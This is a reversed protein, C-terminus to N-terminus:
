LYKNITIHNIEQQTESKKLNECALTLTADSPDPIHNLELWYPGWIDKYKQSCFLKLEEPAKKLEELISRQCTNDMLIGSGKWNEVMDGTIDMRGFIPGVSDYINSNCLLKLKKVEDPTAQVFDLISQSIEIVPCARPPWKMNISDHCNKSKPCVPKGNVKIIANHTGRQSFCTAGDKCTADIYASGTQAEMYCTSGPECTANIHANGTGATMYCLSGPKCTADIHANLTGADLYCTSGPECTIKKSDEGTGVSVSCIAGTACTAEQPGGYFICYQNPKCTGDIARTVEQCPSKLFQSMPDMPDM